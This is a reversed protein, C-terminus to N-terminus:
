KFFVRAVLNAVLIYAGVFVVELIPIVFKVVIYIVVIAGLFEIM